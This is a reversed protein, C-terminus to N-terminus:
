DTAEAHLAIASPSRWQKGGANRQRGVVDNYNTLQACQRAADVTFPPPPNQMHMSSGYKASPILPMYHQWGEFDSNQLSGAAGTQRDRYQLYGGFTTKTLWVEFGADVLERGYTELEALELQNRDM